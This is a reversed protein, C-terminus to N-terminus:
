DANETNVHLQIRRKGFDQFAKGTGSCLRCLQFMKCDISRIGDALGNHRCAGLYHMVGANRSYVFVLFQDPNEVVLSNKGDFIGDLLHCVGQSDGSISDIKM